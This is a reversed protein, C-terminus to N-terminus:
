TQMFYFKNADNDFILEMTKTGVYRVAKTAEVAKESSDVRLEPPLGPTPAEETTKQNRRVASYDREWLGVDDAHEDVFVQVEAHQPCGTTYKEVPVTANGSSKASEHQASTLVETFEGSNIIRM